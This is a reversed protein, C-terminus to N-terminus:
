AIQTIGNVLFLIGIVLGLVIGIVRSHRALWEQFRRLHRSAWGPNVVYVVIPAIVGIQLVILLVVLAVWQQTSSLEAEVIEAVGGVYIGLQKFNILALIAGFGASRGISMTDLAAMFKPPPADPDPANVLLKVAMLIFLGGLVAIITGTVASQTSSSSGSDSSRNLTFIGIVAFVGVLGAGFATAKAVGRNSTLLAVVVTITLPSAAGFLAIPIL